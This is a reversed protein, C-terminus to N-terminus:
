ELIPTEEQQECHSLRGLESKLLDRIAVRIAENRNPYTDMNILTELGDLYAEPLHFTFLKM